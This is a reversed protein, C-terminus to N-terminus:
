SEFLESSNLKDDEYLLINEMLKKKQDNIRIEWSTEKTLASVCFGGLCKAFNGSIALM